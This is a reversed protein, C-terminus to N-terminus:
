NTFTLPGTGVSTCIVSEWRPKSHTGAKPSHKNFCFQGQGVRQQSLEQMLRHCMLSYNNQTEQPSWSRDLLSVVPMFKQTSWVKGIKRHTVHEIWERGASEMHFIEGKKCPLLHWDRSQGKSAETGVERIIRQKPDQSKVSISPQLKLIQKACAERYCVVSQPRLCHTM